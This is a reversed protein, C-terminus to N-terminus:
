ISCDAWRGLVRSQLPCDAGSAPDGIALHAPDRLLGQACPSSVSVPEAPRDYRSIKELYLTSEIM